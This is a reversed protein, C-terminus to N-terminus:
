NFMKFNGAATSAQAKYGKSSFAGLKFTDSLPSHGWRDWCLWGVREQELFSHAELKTLEM